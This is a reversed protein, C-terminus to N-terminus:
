RKSGCDRLLPNPRADAHITEWRGTADAASSLSYPTLTAREAKKGRFLGMDQGGWCAVSQLRLDWDTICPQLKLTSSIQLACRRSVNLMKLM